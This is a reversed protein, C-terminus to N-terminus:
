RKRNGANNHRINYKKNKRIIISMYNKYQFDDDNKKIKKKENLSIKQVFNPM